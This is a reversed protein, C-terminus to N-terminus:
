TSSGRSSVGRGGKRDSTSRGHGTSGVLATLAARDVVEHEILLKALADLTPRQETLTKRVREVTM